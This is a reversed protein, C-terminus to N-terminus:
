PARHRIWSAVHKCDTALEAGRGDCAVITTPKSAVHFFERVPEDKAYGKAYTVFHCTEGTPLDIVEPQRATEGFIEAIQAGLSECESSSWSTRATDGLDVAISTV